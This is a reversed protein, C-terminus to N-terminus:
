GEHACLILAGTAGGFEGDSLFLPTRGMNTTISSLIDRLVQNNRLTSGAFVIQDVQSAYSLGGCILGVNEGVLGIIAAALNDPEKGGPTEDLLGLKGFAAATLDAPLEIEGSRYIDSVVLDIQTRNGKEALSCIEEFDNTGLLASALGLITGGGLATGGIRVTSDADMLLVSTGTGLSVLLNRSNGSLAEGDLLHRTGAGWSTFEDYRRSPLELQEAFGIAGCGTLGIQEPELGAVRQALRDTEQAPMSEFHLEGSAARFALKALTAGLDVGVAKQEGQPPNHVVSSKVEDM